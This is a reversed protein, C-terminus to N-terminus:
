KGNLASQMQQAFQEPTIKGGFIQAVLGKHTQADNGQLYIDWASVNDKAPKAITELIKLQVPNLKSQDLKSYDWMPLANGTLFLQTSVAESLYIAFKAAQEKYKTNNSVLFCVAGGGVYGTPDVGGSIAPFPHVEIKGDVASGKIKGGSANLGYYMAAKGSFFAVESDDRSLGLANPDFAGAQVLQQLKDAAKIFPETNFSGKKNLADVVTTAGAERLAIQNYYWMGPWEDKEGVALPVIGKAKLAKSVNLLDDFTKPVSLNNDALIATNVFFTGVQQTANIGYTKGDYQVLAGPLLRKKIDDTLYSDLPLVKGSDVFPKTFGQPWSFYVDPAEDAAIATKIKTKYPDNATTSRTVQINPNKDNWEKIIGDLITKQPDGPWADWYTLTVKQNGTNAPTESSKCASLGVVMVAAMVIAGLRKSLGHFYKLNGM